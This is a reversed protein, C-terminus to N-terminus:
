ISVVRAVELYRQPSTARPTPAVEGQRELLGSRLTFPSRGRPRVRTLDSRYRLHRAAEPDREPLTAGFRLYRALEHRREPLTAGM